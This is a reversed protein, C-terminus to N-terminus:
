RNPPNKIKYWLLYDNNPAALLYYEHEVTIRTIRRIEKQSFNIGTELGSLTRGDGSLITGTNSVLRGHYPSVGFFNAATLIDEKGDANFDDVLFRNIPSIQLEKEFPVFNFIEGDNKLYGSALTSIELVSAKVLAEEGFVQEMTQGAFDSYHPFRKRIMGELQSDMEDKSNVPYYKGKREMALLTEIQGNGDFDDVYMKLPSTQSCHFKSNLGWNGLLYDINGDKNVDALQITRWLGEISESLYKLTVNTFSGNENAFFQPSMWEGVLVLDPSQDGTFDHWVADTVM